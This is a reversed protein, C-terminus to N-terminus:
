GKKFTSTVVLNQSAIINIKKLLKNFIKIIILYQIYKHVLRSSYLDFQFNLTGKQDLIQFGQIPRHLFILSSISKM